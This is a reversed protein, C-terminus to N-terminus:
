PNDYTQDTSLVIRSSPRCCSCAKLYCRSLYTQYETILDLYNRIPNLLKQGAIFLRYLDSNQLFTFPHYAEILLEDIYEVMQLKNAFISNKLDSPPNAASSNEERLEQACNENRNVPYASRYVDQRIITLIAIFDPRM